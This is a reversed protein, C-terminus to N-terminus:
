IKKNITKLPIVKINKITIIRSFKNKFYKTKKENM